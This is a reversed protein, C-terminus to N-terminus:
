QPAAPPLYEIQDRLKRANFLDFSFQATGFYSLDIHILSRLARDCNLGQTTRNGFRRESQSQHDDM